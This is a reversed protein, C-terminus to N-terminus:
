LKSRSSTDQKGAPTTNPGDGLKMAVEHVHTENIHNMWDDINDYAHSPHYNGDAGKTPCHKWWCEFPKDSELEEEIPHHKKRIHKRLTELNHLEDKCRKWKCRFISHSQPSPSPVQVEVRPLARASQHMDGLSTAKNKAGPPRGKRKGSPWFSGGQQEMKSSRSPPRSGTQPSSNGAHPAPANQPDTTAKRKNPNLASDPTQAFSERLKSTRPESHPKDEKRQNSRHNLRAFLAPSTTSVPAPTLVQPPAQHDRKASDPLRTETDTDGEARRERRKTHVKAGLRYRPPGAPIEVYEVKPAPPGGPDIADWDFTNLDSDLEIHVGLLGAMHANLPRETPHRGAAIMIDRAVTKPDYYEKALAESKNVPRALITKPKKPPYPTTSPHEPPQMANYSMHQPGPVFSASVGPQPRNPTGGFQVQRLLDPEPSTGGPEQRGTSLVYDENDSLQTLDVLESFDRKRAMAEKSGPPPEPKALPLPGRKPTRKMEQKLHSPLYPGQFIPAPTPLSHQAPGNPMSIHNVALFSSGSPAAQMPPPRHPQYQMPAPHHGTFNMVPQPLQQPIAPPIVAPDEQKQAKTLDPVSALLQRAFHGRHFKLGKKELMDCLDIYNPNQDLMTNIDQATIEIAANAPDAKLASIASRALAERKDKPWEVGGGVANAPLPQDPVPGTPAPQHAAREAKHSPDVRYTGRIRREAPFRGLDPLGEKNDEVVVAYGNRAANPDVGPPLQAPTRDRKKPVPLAKPTGVVSASQNQAQSPPSGADVPAQPQIEPQQSTKSATAPAISSAPGVVANPGGKRMDDWLKQFMLPDQQRFEKMRDMMLKMQMAMNLEAPPSASEAVTPAAAPATTATAVATSKAKSKPTKKGQAKKQIQKTKAAAASAEAAAAEEAVKKAKEDARQEEEEEKRQAEEQKRRTEAEAAEKRRRAHERQYPNFVQSPDIYAPMIDQTAETTVPPTAAILNSISTAQMGSQNQRSTSNQQNRANAAPARQKSMNPSSTGRQDQSSAGRKKNSNSVYPTISEQTSQSQQKAANLQARRSVAGALAEAVSHQQSTGSSSAPQQYDSTPYTSYPSQYQQPQPQQPQQMGQLPSRMRNIPDGPMASQTSVPVAVQQGHGSLQPSGLGSAHALSNLGSVNSSRGNTGKNNYNVNGAAAQTAYSPSERMYGYQDQQLTGDRWGERGSGYASQNSQTYDFQKQARLDYASTSYQAQRENAFTVAPAYPTTATHRASSHSQRRNQAPNYYGGQGQM